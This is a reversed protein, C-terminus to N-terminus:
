HKEFLACTTKYSKFLWLNKHMASRWHSATPWPIVLHFLHKAAVMPTRTLQTSFSECTVIEGKVLSCGGFLGALEDANPRYMTDIPSPHFPFSHPVTALIFGGAPVLDVCRQAFQARDVVHELINSCLVMHPQRDAIRHFVADSFIDGAIDVGDAEELDSHIIEVARDQLPAIINTFIFPQGRERFARSASGLNLLPSIRETELTALTQAIWLAENFLM